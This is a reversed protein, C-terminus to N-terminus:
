VNWLTDINIVICLGILAVLILIIPKKLKDKEM